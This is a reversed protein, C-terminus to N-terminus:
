SDFGSTQPPPVKAPAAYTTLSPLPAARTSTMIEPPPSALGPTGTREPQVVSGSPDKRYVEFSFGSYESLRWASYPTTLLGTMRNRPPARLMLRVVLLAGASFPLCCVRGFGSNETDSNVAKALLLDHFSGATAAPRVSLGVFYGVRSARDGLPSRAWPM